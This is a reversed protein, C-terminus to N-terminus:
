KACSPGEIGDSDEAGLQGGCEPCRNDRLGQLCYGCQACHGPRPVVARPAMITILVVAAIGVAILILGCARARSEYQPWFHPYYSAAMSRVGEGAGVLLWATMRPLDVRVRIPTRALYGVASCLIFAIVAGHVAPPLLLTVPGSSGYFLGWLGGVGAAVAM